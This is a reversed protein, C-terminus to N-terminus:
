AARRREGGRDAGAAPQVASVRLRHERRSVAGEARRSLQALDHGARRSAGATPELIGAISRSCRRRAAAARARGAADTRRLLRRSRRRAARARAHRGIGFEKTVGRCTVAPQAHDLLLQRCDPTMRLLDSRDKSCSPRNSCWCKACALLSSLMVILMVAVGTGVLVQWPMFFALKSADAADVDGFLAAGGVGLGYGISAWSPAQLLIMGMLRLNSAGMAKLAGFQKLNEITFLYFTQGAIATGVIFGM